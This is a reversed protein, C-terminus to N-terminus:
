NKGKAQRELLERIARTVAQQMSLDNAKAWKNIAVWLEKEFRMTSQIKASPAM